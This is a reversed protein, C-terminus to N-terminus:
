SGSVHFDRTQRPHRYAFNRLLKESAGSRSKPSAAPDPVTLGDLFSEYSVQFRSPALRPPRHSSYEGDLAPVRDLLSTAPKSRLPVASLSHPRRQWRM